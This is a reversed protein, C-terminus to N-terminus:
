AGDPRVGCGFAHNEFVASNGQTVHSAMGKTVARYSVGKQEHTLGKTVLGGRLDPLHRGAAM